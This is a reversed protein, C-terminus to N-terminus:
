RLLKNCLSHFTRPKLQTMIKRGMLAEMREVLEGAAKRTFTIALIEHPQAQGTAILYAVRAAMTRTKGSGPGAACCVIGHKASVM